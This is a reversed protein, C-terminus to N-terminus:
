PLGKPVSPFFSPNQIRERNRKAMEIQRKKDIRQNYFSRALAFVRPEEDTASVVTAATPSADKAKAEPKPTEEKKSDPQAKDKEEEKQDKEKGKDKDEKQAKEKQKEAYEKKIREVEEDLEKKKKAEAEAKLRAEIAAHDVIPTAFNRDKLHIACVYFFDQKEPTILVSTTPKYCINCGKSSTDAVKRHTYVNPFPASSM